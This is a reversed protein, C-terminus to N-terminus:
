AKELVHWHFQPGFEQGNDTRVAHVSFPLKALAYDIFQISSKQTIREYIKLIRIRTCDDIATYQYYRRHAVGPIPQLFKVDVQLHHGPRPKQYHKYRKYHPQYRQNAPLRNMGLKRLIGFIGCATIDIDHYRKLYMQIRKPGFHYTQRLYLIKEVVEAKTTQPSHLPRRSGDILGTSGKELYRNYWKYYRRRSICYYRCTKAVNHTIEQVHNFWALRMKIQREQESM